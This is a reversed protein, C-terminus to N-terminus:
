DNVSGIPPIAGLQQMFSYGDFEQWEEAIKGEAIRSILISTLVIEKGTAPIGMYDGKHTGRFTFRTVVNDDEAIMDEITQSYDPFAALFTRMFQDTEENTLPEPNGPQHWVYDTTYLEDFITWNKKVMEDFAGRVLAKNDELQRTSSSTCGTCILGFVILCVPLVKNVCKM